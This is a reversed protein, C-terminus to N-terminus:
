LIVGNCMFKVQIKVIRTFNSMKKRLSGHSGHSITKPTKVSLLILDIYYGKALQQYHYLYNIEDTKVIM